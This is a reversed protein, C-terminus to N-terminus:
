GGQLCAGRVAVGYKILSLIINHGKCITEVIMDAYDDARNALPGFGKAHVQNQCLPQAGFIDGKDSFRREAQSQLSGVLGPDGAVTGPGQAQIRVHQQQRIGDLFHDAKSLLLFRHDEFKSAKNQILKQSAGPRGSIM